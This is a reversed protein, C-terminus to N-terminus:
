VEGILNSMDYKGAPKGVLFKAAEIAGKAFIDKSAAKHTLEVIEDRGAFIITHEGVITGGRVAHMGIEKPSRKEKVQSRDTVFEYDGGMAENIEKGLLYATGSPADVKQNHHKEIIEVDFGAAGLVSAAKKALAAVLNIGLSMNASLFVPIEKSIEALRELSNDDLGTTCVVLPMKKSVAYELVEPVARATSFDIIVDAPMDCDQINSFTPFTAANDLSVDIGAVIDLEKENHIHNCVVKGMAGNCGHMIVNIM